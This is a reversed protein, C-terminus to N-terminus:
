PIQWEEPTFNNLWQQLKVIMGADSRGYGMKMFNAADVYWQGQEYSCIKPDFSGEFDDLATSLYGLALVNMTELHRVKVALDKQVNFEEKLKKKNEEHAISAQLLQKTNM